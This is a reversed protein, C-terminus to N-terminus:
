FILLETIKIKRNKFIIDPDQSKSIKNYGVFFQLVRSKKELKEAIESHPLLFSYESLPHSDSYSQNIAKYDIADWQSLIFSSSVVLVASLVMWKYARTRFTRWINIWSSLWLWVLLIIFFYTYDEYFNIPGYM